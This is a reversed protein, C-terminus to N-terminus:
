YNHSLVFRSLLNSSVTKLLELNQELLSSVHNLCCNPLCL